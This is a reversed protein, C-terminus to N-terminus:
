KVEVDPKEDEDPGLALEDTPDVNRLGPPRRGTKRKSSTWFLGRDQAEIARLTRELIEQKYKNGRSLEDAANDETLVFYVNAILGLYSEEDKLRNMARTSRSIGHDLVYCLAANDVAIHWRTGAAIKAAHRLAYFACEMERHFIHLGKLQPEWKGKEAAIVEGGCMLIYGWGFDSADTIILADGDERRTREALMDIRIPATNLMERWAIQLGDPLRIKTDWGMGAKQGVLTALQSATKGTPTEWLNRSRLGEAFILRGVFQAYLRCTGKVPIIDNKWEDLKGPLAYLLEQERFVTVGLITARSQDLDHIRIGTDRNADVATRPASDERDGAGGKVIAGMRDCNRLIRARMEELEWKEQGGIIINDYYIMLWCRGSKSIVYMPMDATPDIFPQADFLEKEGPERGLVLM